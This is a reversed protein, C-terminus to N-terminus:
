LSKIWEEFEKINWFVKYNLNNQEAIKKKELDTETWVKIAGIYFKHSESLKIMRQLEIMDEENKEDFFHTHHTWFYNCEIFLDLSIIYFDCNFPYRINDKYQRIIDNKNFKSLLLLYSKNEPISSGFTKNIRKAQDRKQQIENKRERFSKLVDPICYSNTVGYKKLLTEKQHQQALKSQFPWDVGYRNLCTQHIKEKVENSQFPHKVGYKKLSTKELKQKYEDTQVFEEVGYKKLNNEKRLKNIKANEEKNQRPHTTGYKQISTQESEMNRLKYICEKSCGKIFYNNRKNGNFKLIGKGCIPCIKNDRDINHKICFLSEYISESYKYRNLLYKEIEETIRNKCRNLLCVKKPWLLNIIYEDNIEM